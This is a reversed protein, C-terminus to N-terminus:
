SFINIIICHKVLLEWPTSCPAWSPRTSGNVWQDKPSTAIIFFYYNEFEYWDYINAANGPFNGDLLHGLFWQHYTLMPELLSKTGYWAMVQALTLGSIHWWIADSPWVSHIWAKVRKTSFHSYEMCILGIGHSNIDQRRTDGPWWSFHYQNHLIFLGREEALCIEVVQLHM